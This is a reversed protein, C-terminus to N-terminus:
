VKEAYYVKLSWLELIYMCTHLLYFHGRLHPHPHITIFNILKILIQRCATCSASSPFSRWWRFTSWWSHEQTQWWSWSSWTGRPEQPRIPSTRASHGSPPCRGWPFHRSVLQCPSSRWSLSTASSSASSTSIAPSSIDCLLESSPLITAPSPASLFSTTM